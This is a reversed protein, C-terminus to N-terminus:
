DPIHLPSHCSHICREVRRRQTNQRARIAEALRAPQADARDLELHAPLAALTEKDQLVREVRLTARRTVEMVLLILPEVDDGTIKLHLDPVLPEREM